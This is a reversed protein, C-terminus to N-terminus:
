KVKWAAVKQVDAFNLDCIEHFSERRCSCDEKKDRIIEHDHGKWRSAM